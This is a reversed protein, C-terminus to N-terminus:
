SFCKAACDASGCDGACCCGKCTGDECGPCCTEGAACSVGCCDDGCIMPCQQNCGGCNWRSSDLDICVLDRNCLGDVVAEDAGTTASCCRPDENRGEKFFCMCKLRDGDLPDPACWDYNGCWVGCGGCNREDKAQTCIYDGFYGFKQCCEEGAGCGKTCETCHEEKNRPVCTGECCLQDATCADGADPARCSGCHREDSSIDICVAKYNIDQCCTQNAPCCGDGCQQGAPCCRGDICVDDDGPCCGGGCERPPGCCGKDVCRSGCCEQGKPCCASGCIQDQPCCGGAFCIDEPHPCCVTCEHTACCRGNVCIGGQHPCCHGNCAIVGAPCCTATAGDACHEGPDCCTSATTLGGCARGVPCCRHLSPIWVEGPTCPPRPGPGPGGSAISRLRSVLKGIALRFGSQSAEQAAITRTLDDFRHEDM